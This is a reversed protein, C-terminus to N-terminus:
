VSFCIFTSQSLTTLIIHNGPTVHTSEAAPAPGPNATSQPGAATDASSDGGSTDDYVSLSSGALLVLQACILGLRAQFYCFFLALLVMLFHKQFVLFIYFCGGSPMWCNGSGRRRISVARPINVTFMFLIILASDIYLYHICLWPHLALEAFVSSQM